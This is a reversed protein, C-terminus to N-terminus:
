TSRRGSKPARASAARWYTGKDESKAILGKNVLYELRFYIESSTLDHLGADQKLEEDKYFRLLLDGHTVPSPGLMDCLTKNVHDLARDASGSATEPPTSLTQLADDFGIYDEGPDYYCVEFGKVTELYTGRRVGERNRPALVYESELQAKYTLSLEKKRRVIEEDVETGIFVVTHKLLVARLFYDISPRAIYLDDYDEEALVVKGHEVNGHLYVLFPRRFSSSRLVRGLNDHEGRCVQGWHTATTPGYKEVLVDYNTTIIGVWPIALLARLRAEMRKRRPDTSPLEYLHRSDFLERIRETLWPKDASALRIASAALPLRGKVLCERAYEVFLRRTEDNLERMDATKGRNKSRKVSPPVLEKELETVLQELLPKWLPMGCAASFGAGLYAVCRRDWVAKRLTELNSM